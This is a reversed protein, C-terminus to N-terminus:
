GQNVPQEERHLQKLWGVSPLGFPRFKEPREWGDEMYLARNRSLRNAVPSDLLHSSDTTSM